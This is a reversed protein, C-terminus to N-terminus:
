NLQFMFKMVDSNEREWKECSRKHTWRKLAGANELQLMYIAQMVEANYLGSAENYDLGLDAWRRAIEDAMKGSLDSQRRSEHFPLLSPHRGDVFKQANKLFQERQEDNLTLRTASRM